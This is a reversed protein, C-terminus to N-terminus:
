VAKLHNAITAQKLERQTFKEKIREATGKPTERIYKYFSKETTHGSLAMIESIELDGAKYENTCFTRRATHSSVFEYKPKVIKINKGGTIKHITVEKALIECKKCVEYLYDNYNKNSIGPLTYNYKELIDIVVKAMPIIVQKGGKTQLLDIMGNSILEPKVKSLDSHRLATYCGIVFMDRVRELRPQKTLDLNQLEIIEETNLYVTDSKSNISKFKRHTFTNNTTLGDELSERMYVKINTILKGITNPVQKLNITLYDVFKKYFTMDISEFEIKYNANKEFNQLHRKLNHFQFITKPSMPTGKELHVRTGNEMRYLFFEYNGWFSKKLNQEREEKNEKSLYKRLKDKLHEAPLLPVVSKKSHQNIWDTEIQSIMADVDKLWKNFSSYGTLSQRAKQTDPNWDKPDVSKNTHVRIRQTNYVVTVFLPTKDTAHPTKLNFSVEM